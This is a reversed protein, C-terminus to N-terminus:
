GGPVKLEVTGGSAPIELVGIALVRRGDRIQVDHRGPKLVFGSVPAQDVWTGDVFVSGRGGEITVNLTADPRKKNKKAEKDRAKQELSEGSLWKGGEICVGNPHCEAAVPLPALM